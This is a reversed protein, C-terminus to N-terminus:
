LLYSPLPFVPALQPLHLSDCDCFHENIIFHIQIYLTSLFVSWQMEVHLEAPRDIPLLM